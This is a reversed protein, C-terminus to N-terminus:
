NGYPWRLCRDLDNKTEVMAAASPEVDELPSIRYYLTNVFRNVQAPSCRCLLTTVENTDAGIYVYPGLPIPGDEVTRVVLANPAEEAPREVAFSRGPLADGFKAAAANELTDSVFFRRIADQLGLVEWALPFGDEGLTGRIGQWHSGHKGPDARNNWLYVVQAFRKGRIRVYSAGGHVELGDAVPVSLAAGGTTAELNVGTLTRVPRVSSSHDQLVQQVILPALESLADAEAVPHPKYFVAGDFETLAIARLAERDALSLAAPARAIPPAHPCGCVPPALCLVVLSRIEGAKLMRRCAGDLGSGPM